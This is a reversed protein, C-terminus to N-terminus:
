PPISHSGDDARCDTSVTYHYGEPCNWFCGSLSGALLMVLAAIGFATGLRTLNKM